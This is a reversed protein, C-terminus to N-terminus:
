ISNHILIPNADLPDRGYWRMPVSLLGDNLCRRIEQRTAM